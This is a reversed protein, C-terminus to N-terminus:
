WFIDIYIIRKLEKTKLDKFSSSIKHFIKSTFDM